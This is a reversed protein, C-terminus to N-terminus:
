DEDNVRIGAVRIDGRPSAHIAGENKDVSVRGSGAVRAHLNTSVGDLKFSGSGSITVELNEARGGGIDIDGSGSLRAKTEGHVSSAEIDGSGSTAFNAGGGVEGVQVDGSGSTAASLSGGINGASVDGSGGIRISADGAVDGIDIDGSGGIAIDAKRASLATVDGSGSIGVKLTERAHGISVDGNRVVGINANHVNGIVAEVLGGDLAFDGELDGVAAITIVDDFELSTGKPLTLKMVPYDMLFAELGDEKYGRHRRIDKYIDDRWNRDPADIKLTGNKSKITVPLSEVSDIISAEVDNGGIKVTIRGVFDSVIVQEVDRYTEAHAVAGLALGFAACILNAKM